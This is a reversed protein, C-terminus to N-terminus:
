PLLQSFHGHTEAASLAQESPVCGVSKHLRQLLAEVEQKAAPADLLYQVLLFNISDARHLQLSKQRKSNLCLCPISRFCLCTHCVGLSARIKTKNNENPFFFYFQFTLVILQMFQSEINM